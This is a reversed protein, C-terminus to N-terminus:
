LEAWTRQQDLRVNGGAGARYRNVWLVFGSERYLAARL